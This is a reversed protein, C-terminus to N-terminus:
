PRYKKIRMNPWIFEVFSDPYQEDLFSEVANGAAIGDKREVYRMMALASLALDCVMLAVCVWTIIKGAIPPIKEIRRSLPPYIIKVWILALIGWFICFLLNTRGGINFPMNSYDWFVTGFVKESIVSCLYEYTGGLFFGGLFIYRDELKALRYLLITLLVAGFGWVISFPGYLVSSRSMWIGATFRVYFTEIIDGGLACIFFVWIIKDLCLGKAFPYQKEETMLGEGTKLNPYALRIRRWFHDAIWTGLGVKREWIGAELNKMKEPLSKKHVAYEVAAFDTLVVAALAIVIIKLILVPILQTLFFLMPQLLLMAVLAAASMGLVDLFAKGRGAYVSHNEQDWLVAKTMRDSFEGALQACASTIVMYAVAQLLFRGKLTPLVLILLDMAIGYSLSFPVGFVGRNHFHGTRIAVFLVEGCWGVFSYCFLFFLMEYISYEM